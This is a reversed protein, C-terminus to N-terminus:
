CSPPAAALLKIVDTISVYSTLCCITTREVAQGSCYISGKGLRDLTTSVGSCPFVKDQEL